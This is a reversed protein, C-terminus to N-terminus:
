LVLCLQKVGEIEETPFIFIELPLDKTTTPQLVYRLHRPQSETCNGSWQKWGTHQSHFPPPVAGWQEVMPNIPVFTDALIYIRWRFLQSRSLPKKGKHWNWLCYSYRGTCVYKVQTPLIESCSSWRTCLDPGANYVTWIPCNNSLWYGNDSDSITQFILCFHSLISLARCLKVLNSFFELFFSSHFSILQWFFWRRFISTLWQRWTQCKKSNIQNFVPVCGKEFHQSGANCVTWIKCDIWM